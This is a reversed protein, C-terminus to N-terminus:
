CFGQPYSDNIALKIGALRSPTLRLSARIRPGHRYRLHSEIKQGQLVRRVLLDALIDGEKAGARAARVKAMLDKRKDTIQAASEAPRTPTKGQSDRLKVYDKIRTEFQKVASDDPPQQAALTLTALVVIAACARIAVTRTM